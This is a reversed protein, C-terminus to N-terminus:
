DAVGASRAYLEGYLQYFREVQQEQRYERLVVQRASAGLARRREDDLLLAALAGRLAAVDGVPVLEGTVAPRVMEGIGGADFGVVPLGCALAELVTNPQNDQLSPIAFLDAASYVLSLLREQKVEGLALHPVDLEPTRGRGLSLLFLNPVEDRMAGLTQTLLAFGKRPNTTSMAVYLVVRAEQPIGLVDRALARDRPAFTHTNLGNPIVSLSFRRLLPSRRVQGAMWENNAVVHLRQDGLQGFAAEKRRWIQRSLDAPDASGLQPCAGCGSAWRGCLEDYHCGGTFPNMDSLLWVVPIAPPLAAFFARYDLMGAVWHLTVIDAPPVARAVAAGYRSRDDTFPEHGPGRTRSYPAFDSNIQRLRLQRRLRALLSGGGLARVSPDGSEAKVVLLESDLGRRRLGTHLRYAVLAAGGAVDNTSLHLLKM